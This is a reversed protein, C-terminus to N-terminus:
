KTSVKMAKLTHHPHRGYMMNGEAVKRWYPRAKQKNVKPQSRRKM